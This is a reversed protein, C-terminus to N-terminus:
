RVAKVRGEKLHPKAAGASSLLVQIQGGILDTLAPGSGRYPVGTVSLGTERALLETTFAFEPSPSGYFLSNPSPRPFRWWSPWRNPRCRLM